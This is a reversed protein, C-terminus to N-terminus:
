GPGSGALPGSDCFIPAWAAQPTLLGLGEFSLNSPGPLRPTSPSPLQPASSHGLLAMQASSGLCGTNASLGGALAGLIMGAEGTSVCM